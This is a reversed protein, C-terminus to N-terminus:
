KAISDKVTRENGIAYILKNYSFAICGLILFIHINKTIKTHLTTLFTPKIRLSYKKEGSLM